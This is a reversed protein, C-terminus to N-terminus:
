GGAIRGTGALHALYGTGPRRSRLFCFVGASSDRLASRSSFRVGPNFVVKYREHAVALLAETDGRGAPAALLFYGGQPTRYSVSPLYKRVAADMAQIRGAYVQRLEHINAQLDGNELVGRVIASTFPNLGGGSDLLGSNHWGTM